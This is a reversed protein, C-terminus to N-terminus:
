DQATEDHGDISRRTTALMWTTDAPVGGKWIIRREKSRVRLPDDM